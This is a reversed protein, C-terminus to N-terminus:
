HLCRIHHPRKIPPVYPDMPHITAMPLMLMLDADHNQSTKLNTYRKKFPVVQRLFHGIDHCERPLKQHWLMPWVISERTPMPTNLVVQTSLISLTIPPPRHDPPTMKGHGRPYKRNKYTDARDHIKQSCTKQPALTSCSGRVYHRFLSFM